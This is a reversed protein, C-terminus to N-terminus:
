ETSTSMISMLHIASTIFLFLRSNNPLITNFCPAVVPCQGRCPTPAPRLAAMSNVTTEASAASSAHTPFIQKNWWALLKDVKRRASTGERPGEFYDVIFNYLHPYSFKYITATWQHANTLSMHVLVCIFAISRPTVKGDMLFIDCPPKRSPKVADGGNRPKKSPPENEDNDKASSPGTFVTKYGKVLYRSKLFGDDYESPDGRFNLYFIRCFFSTSLHGSNRIATRVDADDWDQDLSTLLGGCIDHDPGRNVRTESLGPAYMRYKKGDADVVAATHDFVAIDPSDKDANIWSGLGRTIRSLCESRADNASKQIANYFHLLDDANAKVLKNGLEPVLRLTEQYATLNRESERRKQLLEEQEDTLDEDFEDYAPEAIRGDLLYTEAKAVISPIDGFMAALHRIGRAAGLEGASPGRKRKAAAEERMRTSAELATYAAKYDIAEGDAPRSTVLLQLTTPIPQFLSTSVPVSQPLPPPPPSRQRRRSSPRPSDPSLSRVM